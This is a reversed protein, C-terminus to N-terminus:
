WVVEPMAAVKMPGVYLARSQITLPATVVPEGDAAPRSLMALMTRALNVEKPKLMASIATLAQQAGRVEMTMAAQPQLERDLAFTGNVSLKVPGWNVALRDLEVTGGSRSWASLSAPEPAPPRGQVRVTAEAREMAPGLAAAEPPLTIGDATVAMTLGTEQHDAPPRGPQTMVLSLSRVRVPASHPGAPAAAVDTFIMTADTVQGDPGLLVRGHGSVAELSTVAGDVITLKQTGPLTIAIDSPNGVAAEAVLKAGQWQLSRTAIAGDTAVARVAFPFGEMGLSAFRVDIGHARQTDAWDHIGREVTRAALFWAGTWGAAALVLIPACVLALRRLIPRM